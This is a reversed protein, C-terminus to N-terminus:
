IRCRAPADHSGVRHARGAFRARADAQLFLRYVNATIANARIKFFVCLCLSHTHTHIYSHFLSFSFSLLFLLPLKSRYYVRFTRSPSIVTAMEFAARSRGDSFGPFNSALFGAFHLTRWVSPNFSFKILKPLASTSNM